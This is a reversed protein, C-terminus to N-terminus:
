VRSSCGQGAKSRKTTKPQARLFAEILAKDNPPSGRKVWEPETEALYRVFVQENGYHQRARLVQAM